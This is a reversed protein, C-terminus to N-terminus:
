PTEEIVHAVAQRLSESDFMDALEALRDPFRDDELVIINRNQVESLFRNYSIEAMAAGGRLDVRRESYAHIAQDLKHSQIGEIVWKKMLTSESVHMQQAVVALETAEAHALRISKTLTSPKM